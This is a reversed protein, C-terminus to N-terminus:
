IKICVRILHLDASMWSTALLENRNTLILLIARSLMLVNAEVTAIWKINSRSGGGLIATGMTRCNSTMRRLRLPLTTLVRQLLPPSLVWELRLLDLSLGTPSKFLM